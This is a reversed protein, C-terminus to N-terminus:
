EEVNPISEVQPASTQVLVDFDFVFANKTRVLRNFAMNSYNQAMFDIVPDIKDNLNVGDKYNIWLEKDVVSVKIVGSTQDVANLNGQLVDPSFNYVKTNATLSSASDIVDKNDEPQDPEAAVNDDADNVDDDDQVNDADNVKNSLKVPADPIDSIHPLDKVEKHKTIQDEKNPKADKIVFKNEPVDLYSSLQQLLEANVPNAIAAKIRNQDKISKAAFLKSSTIVKM